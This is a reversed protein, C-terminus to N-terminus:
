NLLLYEIQGLSLGYFIILQLLVLQKHQFPALLARTLDIVRRLLVLM